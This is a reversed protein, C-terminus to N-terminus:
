ESETDCTFAGPVHTINPKGATESRTVAIADFRFDTAPLDSQSLYARAAKIIATQKRPTIWALPEGFKGTQATKVEVFVV